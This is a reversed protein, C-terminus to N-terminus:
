VLEEFHVGFAHCVLVFQDKVGPKLLHTAYISKVAELYTKLDTKNTTAFFHKIKDMKSLKACDTHIVEFHKDWGYSPLGYKAEVSRVFTMM